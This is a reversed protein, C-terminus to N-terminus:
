HKVIIERARVCVGVCQFDLCCVCCFFVHASSCVFSFNESENDFQRIIQQKTKNKKHQHDTITKLKRLMVAAITLEYVPQHSLDKPFSLKM